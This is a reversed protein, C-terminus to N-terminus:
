RQRAKILFATDIAAARKSHFLRTGCWKTRCVGEGAVAPDGAAALLSLVYLPVEGPEPGDSDDDGPATPMLEGDELQM